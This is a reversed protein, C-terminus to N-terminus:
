GRQRPRLWVLCRNLFGSAEVVAMMLPAGARLDYREDRGAMMWAARAANSGNSDVRAEDLVLQATLGVGNTRITEDRRCEQDVACCQESCEPSTACGSRGVVSRERGARTRGVRLQVADGAVNASM